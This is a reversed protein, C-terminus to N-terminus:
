RLLEEFKTHATKQEQPNSNSKCNRISNRTKSYTKINIKDVFATAIKSPFMSVIRLQFMETIKFSHRSTNEGLTKM